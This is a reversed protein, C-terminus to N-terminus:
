TSHNLVCMVQTIPIYPVCNVPNRNYFLDISGLDRAAASKAEARRKVLEAMKREVEIEEEQQEANYKEM